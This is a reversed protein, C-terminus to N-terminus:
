VPAKPDVMQTCPGEPYAKLRSLRSYLGQLVNEFGQLVRIALDRSSTVDQM